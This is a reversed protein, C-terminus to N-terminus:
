LISKENKVEDEPRYRIHYLGEDPLAYYIDMINVSIQIDNKSKKKESWSQFAVGQTQEVNRYDYRKNFENQCHKIQDWNTYLIVNM